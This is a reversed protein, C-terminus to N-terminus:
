RTPAIYTGGCAYLHDHGARRDPATQRTIPPKNRTRTKLQRRRVTLTLQYGNFTLEM